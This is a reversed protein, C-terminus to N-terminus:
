LNEVEVTIPTVIPVTTYTVPSVNKSKNRRYFAIVVVAGLLLLSIVILFPVMVVIKVLNSDTPPLSTIVPTTIPPFTRPPLTKPPITTPLPSDVLTIRLSVPCSSFANTCKIIVYITTRKVNVYQESFCTGTLAYSSTGTAPIVDYDRGNEWAIYNHDDLVLVTFISGDRAIVGVSGSCYGSPCSIEKEFTYGASVGTTANCKISTNTCNCVNCTCDAWATALFFGLFVIILFTQAM